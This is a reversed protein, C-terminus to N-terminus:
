PAPKIASEVRFLKFNSYHHTNRIETGRYVVTVTVDRPLWLVRESGSPQVPYFDVTSGQYSLGIDKRPALLWTKIRLVQFTDADIWALGQVLLATSKGWISLGGVSRAREPEQAFGVVQCARNRITQIGFLRFRSAPQDAPCLYLSTSVFDSTIMSLDGLNSVDLPNGNPDTRYEELEPFDRVPRPVVIYRFKHHAITSPAVSAHIPNGIGAIGGGPPRETNGAAVPTAGEGSSQESVVEDCAIQPFDQLLLTITQGVSKLVMPLQDQSGAPQLKHLYSCNHVQRPTWDILTQAGKYVKIESPTLQLTPEPLQSPAAPQQPGTSVAGICAVALMFSSVLARVQMRSTNAQTNGLDLRCITVPDSFRKEYCAAILHLRPRYTCHRPM